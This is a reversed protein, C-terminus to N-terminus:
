NKSILGKDIKWRNFDLVTPNENQAEFSWDADFSDSFLPTQGTPDDFIGILVGSENDQEPVSVITLRGWIREGSSTLYGNECQYHQRKGNILEVLALKDVEGDQPFIFEALLKGHLETASYDLMRLLAPNCEVLRGSSSFLALGVPTADFLANRLIDNKLAHDFTFKKEIMVRSTVIVAPGFRTDNIPRGTSEILKWSGDNQRFRYDLPSSIGGDWHVSKFYEIFENIDAPHVFDFMSKGLLESPKYGFVSETSPSEFLIRGDADIFTIVDAVNEIVAHFINEDRSVSTDHEDLGVMGRCLEFLKQPDIPKQLYNAAGCRLGDAVISSQQSLDGVLLIPTSGLSTDERVRMCLELGDIDHVALESIILKPLEAEAVRLSNTVNSEFLVSYGSKRLMKATMDFQEKRDSIVLVKKNRSM